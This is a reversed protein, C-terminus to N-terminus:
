RDPDGAHGLRPTEGGGEFIGKAVVRQRDDLGARAPDLVLARHDTVAIREGRLWSLDHQHGRTLATPVVVGGLVDRAPHAQDHRRPDGAGGATPNPFEGDLGELTGTARPQSPDIEEDVALL